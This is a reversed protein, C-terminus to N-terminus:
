YINKGTADLALGKEILHRYDIHNKNLWDFTEPTPAMTFGLNVYTKSYELNQEATMSELPFLYPKIDYDDHGLIVNISGTETTVYINNLKPFVYRVVCEDEMSKFDFWSWTKVRAKVEYPVRASLDALLLEKYEAKM